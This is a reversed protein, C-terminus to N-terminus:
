QSLLQGLRTLDNIVTADTNVETLLADFSNMSEIQTMLQNINVGTRHILQSCSSQGSVGSRVPTLSLVGSVSPLGIADSVTERLPKGLTPPTYSYTVGVKLSKYKAINAINERMGQPITDLVSQDLTSTGETIEKSLNNLFNKDFVVAAADTRHKRFGIRSGAGDHCKLLIYVLRELVNDDMLKYFLSVYEIQEKFLTYYFSGKIIKEALVIKTQNDLQDQGVLVGEDDNTLDGVTAYELNYINLDNIINTRLKGDVDNYQLGDMDFSFLHNYYIDYIGIDKIFVGKIKLEGLSGSIVVVDKSQWEGFGDERILKKMSDILIHMYEWMPTINKKFEETYIEILSPIITGRKDVFEKIGKITEETWTVENVAGGRHLDAIRKRQVSHNLKVDRKDIKVPNDLTYYSREAASGDKANQTASDWWLTIQQKIRDQEESVLNLTPYDESKNLVSIVVKNPKAMNRLYEKDNVDPHLAAFGVMINEINLLVEAFEIYFEITFLKLREFFLKYEYLEGVQQSGAFESESEPLYSESSYPVSLRLDSSGATDRSVSHPLESSTSLALPEEIVGETLPKTYLIDVTIPIVGDGIKELDFIKVLKANIDWLNRDGNIGDIIYPIKPPTGGYPWKIDTADLTTYIKTRLEDMDGMDGERYFDVLIPDIKPMNVDDGKHDVTTGISILLSDKIHLTEKKAQAGSVPDVGTSLPKPLPPTTAPDTREAVSSTVSKKSKVVPKGCLEVLWDTIKKSTFEGYGKDNMFNIFIVAISRAAVNKVLDISGSCIKEINELVTDKDDVVYSNDTVATKFEEFYQILEGDDGQAVIGSAAKATPKEEVSEEQISSRRTGMAKALLEAANQHTQTTPTTPTAPITPVNISKLYAAIKDHEQIKDNADVSVMFVKPIIKIFTNSVTNDDDFDSEIFSEIPDDEDVDPDKIVGDGGTIVLIKGDKYAYFITEDKVGVDDIPKLLKLFIGDVAMKRLGSFTTSENFQEDTYSVIAQIITAQKEAKIKAREPPKPPPPKPPPIPPPKSKAPPPGVTATRQRNIFETIDPDNGDVKIDPIYVDYDSVKLLNPNIDRVGMHTVIQVNGGVKGKIYIIDGAGMGIGDDITKVIKYFGVSILLKDPFNISYKWDLLRKILENKTGEASLSHQSCKQGLNLKDGQKLVSIDQMLLANEEKTM